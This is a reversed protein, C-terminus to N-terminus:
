FGARIAVIQGGLDRFPGGNWDAAVLEAYSLLRGQDDRFVDTRGYVNANEVGVLIPDQEIQASELMAQKLRAASSPSLVFAYSAIQGGAIRITAEGDLADIGIRTLPDSHVELSWRVDGRLSQRLGPEGMFHSGALYRLWGGIQTLGVYRAPPINVVANQAFLSLAADAKGENLDIGFSTALANASDDRSALRAVNVAPAETATASLAPRATAEVATSVSSIPANPLGLRLEAIAGVLAILLLALVLHPGRRSRRAESKRRLVSRTRWSYQQM